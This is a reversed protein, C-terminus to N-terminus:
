TAQQVSCLINNHVKILSCHGKNISRYSFYAIQFLLIYHSPFPFAQHLNVLQCHYIQLLTLSQIAVTSYHCTSRCHRLLDRTRIGRQGKDKKKTTFPTQIQNWRLRRSVEYILMPKVVEIVPKLVQIVRSVSTARVSTWVKQAFKILVRLTDCTM